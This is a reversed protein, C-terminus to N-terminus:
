RDAPHFLFRAYLYAIAESTVSRFGASSAWWRRPDFDRDPSAIIGVTVGDGFAKQFLLRTRRSHAGGSMVNVKEAAVGHERLWNKLAVASAYTRDQVVPPAPIAHVARPDCGVRTLIMAGHEAYTKYEALPSTKEIPGGTVFVAEYQGRRFEALVVAMTEETAWGETVLVGGPRPDNVALFPYIGRLLGGSLVLCAGLFVLWGRWTPVLCERRQMLGPRLTM